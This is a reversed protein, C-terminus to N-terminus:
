DGEERHGHEAQNGFLAGSPLQNGKTEENLWEKPIRQEACYFGYKECWQANTMNSGQVKGALRMFLMRIDLHPNSKKVARMKRQDESEFWGKCEIIIGNALVFDPKYKREVTYPIDYPEYAFGVKQRTLSKAVNSEFESKFIGTKKGRAKRAPAKKTTAM